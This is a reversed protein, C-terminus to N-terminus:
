FLGRQRRELEFGAAAGRVRFGFRFRWSTLGATTTRHTRVEAGGDGEKRM